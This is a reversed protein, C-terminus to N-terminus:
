NKIWGFFKFTGIIESDLQELEKQNMDNLCKAANRIEFDAKNIMQNREFEDSKKIVSSVLPLMDRAQKNFQSQLSM